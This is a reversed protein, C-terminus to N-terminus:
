WRTRGTTGRSSSRRRSKRYKRRRHSTSLMVREGVKFVDKTGRKLNTHHAQTTKAELLNDKAEKADLHMRELLATVNETTPLGRLEEPLVDPVILPIM